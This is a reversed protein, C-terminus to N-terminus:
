VRLVIQGDKVLTRVFYEGKSRLAGTINRRYRFNTSGLGAEISEFALDGVIRTSIKKGAARVHSLFCLDDHERWAAIAVLLWEVALCIM